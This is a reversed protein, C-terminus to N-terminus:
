IAVDRTEKVIRSVEECWLKVAEDYKNRVQFLKKEGCYGEYFSFKPLEQEVFYLNLEPISDLIQM